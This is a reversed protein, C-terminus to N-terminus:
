ANLFMTGSDGNVKRTLLCANGRMSPFEELVTKLRNSQCPSGAVKVSTWMYSRTPRTVYIVSKIFYMDTLNRRFVFETDADYPYEAPRQLGRGFKCWMLLDKTRYGFCMSWRANKYKSNRMVMIAMCTAAHGDFSPCPVRVNHRATYPKTYIHVATVDGQQTTTTELDMPIGTAAVVTGIDAVSPEDRVHRDVHDAVLFAARHARRLAPHIGDTDAAINKMRRCTASMLVMSREDLHDFVHM